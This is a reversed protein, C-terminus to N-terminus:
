GWFIDTQELDVGVMSVDEKQAKKKELSRWAYLNKVPVNYKRAIDAVVIDDNSLESLIQQKITPSINLRLRESM